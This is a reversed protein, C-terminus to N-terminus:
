RTGVGGAEPVVYFDLYLPGASWTDQRAIAGLRAWGGTERIKRTVELLPDFRVEGIEGLPGPIMGLEVLARRRVETRLFGVVEELVTGESEGGYIRDTAVEEGKRLVMRNPTALIAVPVPTSALVNETSVARLIVAENTRAIEDLLLRIIDPEDRFIRSGVQVPALFACSPHTGDPAAKRGSAHHRAEYMLTEIQSRMVESPPNAPVIRRAIEEREMFIHDETALRDATHSLTDVQDLLMKLQGRANAMQQDAKELSTKLVRQQGTLDRNRATLSSNEGSLSRNSRALQANATKLGEVRRRLGTEAAELGQVQQRHRQVVRAMEVQRARNEEQANRTAEELRRNDAALRTNAQQLGRVDRQLQQQRAALRANEQAFNRNRRQLAENESGLRRVSSQLRGYEGRLQATQTQLSANQIRLAREDQRLKQIEGQRLLLIRSLERYSARLAANKLVLREGQTLAMRVGPSAGFAAGLSVCAILVGTVVTFLVATHKPRLGFASLRKKGMRRGLVDGTYAILGCVGLLFLIVLATGM